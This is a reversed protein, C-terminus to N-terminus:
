WRSHHFLIWERRSEVSPVSFRVRNEEWWKKWLERNEPSHTYGWRSMGIAEGTLCTLALAFCLEKMHDFDSGAIKDIEDKPFAEILLPITTEDGVVGLVLAVEKQIRTNGIIEHLMPRTRSGINVLHKMPGSIQLITGGPTIHGRWEVENGPAKLQEILEAVDADPRVAPTPVRPGSTPRNFGVWTLAMFIIAFSGYAIWKCM